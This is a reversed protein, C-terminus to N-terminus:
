FLGAAIAFMFVYALAILLGDIGETTSQSAADAVMEPTISTEATTGAAAPVALALLIFTALTLKKM